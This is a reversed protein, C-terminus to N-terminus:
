IKNLLVINEVHSTHPFMDVPQIKEIRYGEKMLQLDRAQTSPNCSVYVIREPHCEMIKECVREHMGARPPDTIIVDPRGIKNIFDDTLIDKIDGSFFELNKLNNDAANLRADSIADETFDIGIVQGANDALFSAITGTGTYLDYVREKGTLGAFERVFKYLEYAQYSNTQYFSKASIRFSLNEMRELIFDRGSFLHVQQDFITDNKKSNIVYQLSTLFPFRNKIHQLLHQVSSENVEFFVVVVMWEGITTNRIILNRMMGKEGKFDYFSMDNAICYNRVELRIDNSINDQLYCQKIDLIKDYRYPVHFGLAPETRVEELELQEKTLWALSSFTFEMKNRYHQTLDSGAIRLIPPIELKGIRTLADEVQQQKFDLQKEYDLHQWKCGGCTGFHSCFPIRRDASPQRIEVARGEAYNKKKRYILVDAVDGPVADEVFVVLNDVRAVSKGETGISAIEINEILDGKKM